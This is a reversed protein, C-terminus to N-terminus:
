ALTAPHAWPLQIGSTCDPDVAQRSLQPPHAVILHEGSGSDDSDGRLWVYLGGVIEREQSSSSERGCSCFTHRGSPTLKKHGQASRIKRIEVM